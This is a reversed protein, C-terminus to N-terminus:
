VESRRGSRGSGSALPKELNALASASGVFTYVTHVIQSRFTYRNTYIYIYIYLSLSLYISIRIRICITNYLM